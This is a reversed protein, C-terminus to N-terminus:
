WIIDLYIVYKEKASVVRYRTKRSLLGRYKERRVFSKLTPKAIFDEFGLAHLRLAIKKCVTEAFASEYGFSVVTYYESGNYPSYVAEGEPFDSIAFVYGNGHWKKSLYGSIRRVGTQALRPCVDKIIDVTEDAYKEAAMELSSQKEKETLAQKNKALERLNEAFNMKESESGKYIITM